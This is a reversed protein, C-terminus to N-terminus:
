LTTEEVFFNLLRDGFGCGTMISFKKQHSSGYTNLETSCHSLCLCPQIMDGNGNGAGTTVEFLPRKQQPELKLHPSYTNLLM